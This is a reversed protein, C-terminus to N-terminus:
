DELFHYVITCLVDTSKDVFERGEILCGKMEWRVNESAWKNPLDPDCRLEALRAERDFSRGNEEAEEEELTVVDEAQWELVNSNMLGVLWGKDDSCAILRLRHTPRGKWDTMCMTRYLRM